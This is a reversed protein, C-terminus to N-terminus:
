KRRAVMARLEGALATPRGDAPLAAPECAYFSEAERALKTGEELGFTGLTGALKHAAAAAQNRLDSTLSGRALAAAAAEMIAVRTEIEPLFKAWLRDLAQALPSPKPDEM